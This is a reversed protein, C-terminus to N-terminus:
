LEELTITANREVWGAILYMKDKESMDNWDEDSMGFYEKTDITNNDQPLSVTVKIKM